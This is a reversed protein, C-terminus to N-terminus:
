RRKRIRCGLAGRQATCVPNVGAPGTFAVQGCLMTPIGAPDLTIRATLPLAFAAPDIGALVAKVDLKITGPKKKAQGLRFARLAGTRSTYALKKWGTKTAVDFAGPPADLTTVVAGAGDELTVRAGTAAPQLLPAGPISLTGKLVLKEKKLTLVPKALPAGDTCPDCADGRGDTDGDAQDANALAVCNDDCTASDGDADGPDRCPPAEAASIATVALAGGAPTLTFDFGPAVNEVVVAAFAGKLKKGTLFPFTDGPQPLYGDLFRLVLTGGLKVNGTVTLVDFTGPATGGVEVVLMGAPGQTFAGDVMITGPSTGASILGLNTLTGGAPEVDIAGVRLRGNGAITGGPGVFLERGVEVLATGALQVRGRHGADSPDGVDLWTAFRATANTVELVPETIPIGVVYGEGIEAHAGNRIALIGSVIDLEFARLRSPTGITGFDTGTVVLEGNNVTVHGEAAEVELKGGAQVDVVGVDGLTQTDEDVNGIVVAETVTLSGGTMDVVSPNGFPLNPSFAAVTLARASVSVSAGTLELRAFGGTGIGLTNAVSLRGLGEVRITAEAGPTRAARVENATVTGGTLTLAGVGYRGVSLTDAVSVFSEFGAVTLRGNGGVGEGIDVDPASVRGGALVDFTAEADAGVVLRGDSQWTTFADGAVGDVVAFGPGPLVGVRAEGTVRLLSGQRVDVLGPGGGGVALSALTAGGGGSVRLKGGAQEPLADATLAGATLADATLAGPLREARPLTLAPGGAEAPGGISTTGLTASGGTVDLSGTAADGIRVTGTAGLTGSAPVVLTSPLALAVDGIAVGASQVTAGALTLRAGNGITLGIEGGGTLALTGGTLDLLSARVRASRLTRAGALQVTYGSALEFFATDGGQPVDPHDWNDEADFVGGDPNMWYLTEGGPCTVQSCSKGDGQFAGGGDECTAYSQQMCAGDLCCGGITSCFSCVLAGNDNAPETRCNTVNISTHRLTQDIRLCDCELTPGQITCDTCSFAYTGPPLQGAPFGCASAETHVLVALLLGVGLTFARGLAAPGTRADIITAEPSPEAAGRDPAAVARPSVARGNSTRPSSDM